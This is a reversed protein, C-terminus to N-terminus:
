KARFCVGYKKVKESDIIDILKFQNPLLNDVHVLGIVFDSLFHPYSTRSNDYCFVLYGIESLAYDAQVISIEIKSIIEKRDGFSYDNTVMFQYKNSLKEIKSKVETCHTQNLSKKPLILHQKVVNLLM